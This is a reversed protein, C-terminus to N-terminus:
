NTTYPSIRVVTGGSKLHNWSLEWGSEEARSKMNALGNGTSPSEGDFGSGNDTVTVNWSSDGSIVVTM